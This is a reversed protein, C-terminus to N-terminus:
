KLKFKNARHLLPQSDSRKANPKPVVPDLKFIEFKKDFLIKHKGAGASMIKGVDDRKNKAASGTVNLLKRNSTLDLPPILTNSQIKRMVNLAEELLKYRPKLAETRTEPESTLEMINANINSASEAPSTSMKSNYLQVLLEKIMRRQEEPTASLAHSGYKTDFDKYNDLINKIENYYQDQPLGVYGETETDLEQGVMPGNEDNLINSNVMNKIYDQNVQLHNGNSNSHGNSAAFPECSCKYCTSCHQDNQDCSKCTEFSYGCSGASPCGSNTRGVLESHKQRRMRKYNEKQLVQGNARLLSDEM